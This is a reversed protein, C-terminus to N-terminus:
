NIGYNLLFIACVKIVELDKKELYSDSIIDDLNNLYNILKNINNVFYQNDIYKYLVPYSFLTVNKEQVDQEIDIFDDLLQFIFGLHNGIINYYVDNKFDKNIQCIQWVGFVTDRGKILTCELIKDIDKANNIDTFTQYKNTIAEANFIDFM